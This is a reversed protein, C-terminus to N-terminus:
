RDSIGEEKRFERAWRKITDISVGYLQAMERNTLTERKQIFDQVSPRKSRRGGKKPELGIM